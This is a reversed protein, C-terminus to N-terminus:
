AARTMAPPVGDKKTVEVVYEDIDYTREALKKVDPNDPLDPGM